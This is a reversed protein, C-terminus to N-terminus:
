GLKSFEPPKSGVGVVVRRVAGPSKAPVREDSAGGAARSAAFPWVAVIVVLCRPWVALTKVPFM